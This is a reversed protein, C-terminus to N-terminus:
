FLKHKSTKLHSKRVTKHLFRPQILAKFLLWLSHLEGPNNKSQWRRPQCFLLEVLKRYENLSVQTFELSIKHSNINIIKAELILSQELFEIKLNGSDQFPQNLEIEAGKESIKQTVGQSINNNTLLRVPEQLNFWECSDPKPVDMMAWIALSLFMINYSSWVWALYKGGLIEANFSLQSHDNLFSYLSYGFSFLNLILVFILPFALGWNFKFKHSHTGKPTVKFTESFPRIMTQIVNLSIPFCQSIGYLDSVFASRSKNNIWRYSFLQTLYLPTLFYLWEVFSMKLPVLNLFSYAFPFVMFLVKFINYFWQIIGELHAVRQWFSLGPITAPNEQIFFAQLTGRSWRMRQRIHASMTEASLGASLIEGLYIVKYGQASLRVSTFYDESLSETVFGGIEELVDRRVLFSSGYCLATELGDRLLQYHRSFVEVEQTIDNELGLNKALPDPNYFSQYTQLLAIQQNQFFGVTRTLFNTTPIFDADFVVILDGSTKKLGNNLNGAKAHLRHSRTIYSCGLEAALKAVEERNGDDLVYIKKKQYNIAQCGIVTKKLISIDENYTPILIDVTPNYKGEIVAQQARNAEQKRSKVKLLLIIQFITSFFLFLEILFLSISFFGNVPDALNLSSLSRWVLYRVMLVILVLAMIVRSWKQQQPSLKMVIQVIALSIVTPFLLYYSHSFRPVQTWISFNEQCRILFHTILSEGKFGIVAIAVLLVIIALISLFDSKLRFFSFLGQKRKVIPKITEM